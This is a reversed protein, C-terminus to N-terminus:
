CVHLIDFNSGGSAHEEVGKAHCGQSGEETQFPYWQLFTYSSNAFLRRCVDGLIHTHTHTHTYIYIYIYIYIYVSRPLCKRHYVTPCRRCVAFQMRKETKNEVEKCVICEHMPCSFREGAAVQLEFLEQRHHSDPYLMQAVCKPHYFRACDDHECQFVQCAIYFDSNSGPFPNKGRTKKLKLKV